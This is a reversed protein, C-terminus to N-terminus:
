GFLYVFQEIREGDASCFKPELTKFGMISPCGTRIPDDKSKTEEGKLFCLHTFRKNSKFSWKRCEPDNMCIDNCEDYTNASACKIDGGYLDVGVFICGEM